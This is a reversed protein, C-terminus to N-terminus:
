VQASFAADGHVQICLAKDGVRANEDVSFDGDALTQQRGRTKGAAVPNVAQSSGIIFVVEKSQFVVYYGHQKGLFM